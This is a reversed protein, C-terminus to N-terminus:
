SGPRIVAPAARTSANYGDLLIFEAPKDSVYIGAKVHTNKPPGSYLASLDDGEAVQVQPLYSTTVHIVNLVPPNGSELDVGAQVDCYVEYDTEVCRTTLTSFVGGSSAVWMATLSEFENHKHFRIRFHVDDCIPNRSSNGARNLVLM